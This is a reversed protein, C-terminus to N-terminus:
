NGSRRRRLLGLAGLALLGLTSPEPIPNGLNQGPVGISVSDIEFGIGAFQVPDFRLMQIVNGTWTGDDAFSVTYTHFEGDLILDFGKAQAEDFPYNPAEATALGLMGGFANLSYFFKGRTGVPADADVRMRVIVDTVDAGVVDPIDWVLRADAESLGTLTGGHEAIADIEAHMVPDIIDDGFDDVGVQAASAGNNSVRVADISYAAGNAAGMGPTVRFGAIRHDIAGVANQRWAAHQDMDVIYTQTTGPVVTFTASQHDNFAGPGWNTWELRATAPAGAPVTMTIYLYRNAQSDFTYYKQAGSDFAHRGVAADGGSVEFSLQGAAEALNATHVGSWNLVGDDFTDIIGGRAASVAALVLVAASAGGMRRLLTTKM